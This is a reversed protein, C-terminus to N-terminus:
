KEEMNWENPNLQVCVCIYILSLFCLVFNHYKNVAETIELILILLLAHKILPLVANVSIAKEEKNREKERERQM